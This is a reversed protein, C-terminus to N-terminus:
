VRLTLDLFLDYADFGLENLNCGDDQRQPYPIHYINYTILYLPYLGPNQLRSESTLAKKGTDPIRYRADPIWCRFVLFWYDRYHCGSGTSKRLNFRGSNFWRCYDTALSLPGTGM